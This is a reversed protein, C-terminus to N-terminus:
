DDRKRDPAFARIWGHRSWMLTGPPYHPHRVVEAAYGYKELLVRCRRFNGSGHCEVLFDTRGAALLKRAGRLVLLEHGETDVKIFDPTGLEAALSDASRCPVQVHPVADWDRPEWEMGKTGITVLQGTQYQEVAPFALDVEGDHDSVALQRIDADPYHERAYACSAECPEFSTVRGFLASMVPITQGCNAGVDWGYGGGFGEWLRESVEPPDPVSPRVSAQVM